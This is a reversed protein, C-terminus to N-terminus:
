FPRVNNPLSEARHSMPQAAVLGGGPTLSGSMLGMGRASNSLNVSGPGTPTGAGAMGLNLGGLSYSGTGGQFNTVSNSTVRQGDEDCRLKISSM